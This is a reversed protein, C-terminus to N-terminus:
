PLGMAGAADGGINGGVLANPDTFQLAHPASPFVLGTQASGLVGGEYGIVGGITEGALNMMLNQTINEQHIVNHIQM